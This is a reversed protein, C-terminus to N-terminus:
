VYRKARLALVLPLRVRIGSGATAHGLLETPSLSSSSSLPAMEERVVLNVKGTWSHRHQSDYAGERRGRRPATKDTFMSPPANSLRAERDM